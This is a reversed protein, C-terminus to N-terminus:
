KLILLLLISFYGYIIKKCEDSIFTEPNTKWVARLRSFVWDYSEKTENNLLAFGLMITKGFNNIGCINVLPMNFRNRRYTADVFVIDLFKTSYELMQKFIYLVKQLCNDKDLLVDYFGGNTKIDKEIM